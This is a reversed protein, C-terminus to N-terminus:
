GEPRRWFVRFLGQRCEANEMASKQPTLSFHRLEFTYSVTPLPRESGSRNKKQTNVHPDVLVLGQAVTLYVGTPRGEGEIGTVTYV